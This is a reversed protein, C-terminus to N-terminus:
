KNEQLEIWDLAIRVANTAAGVRIQDASCWLHLIKEDYLDRRIRGVYTENTDTAVIPMPYKKESPDDYLVVSKANALIDKVQEITFDKKFKITIAESHSRMVPVRVCTAAVPFNKYLIKQTENVM